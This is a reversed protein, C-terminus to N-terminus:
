RAYFKTFRDGSDGRYDYFNAYGLYFVV